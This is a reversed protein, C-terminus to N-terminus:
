GFSMEDVSINFDEKKYKKRKTRYDVIVILNTQVFLELNEVSFYKKIDEKVQIEESVGSSKGIKLEFFGNRNRLRIDKKFLQYDAYDYYIDHDMKEGMFQAGELLTKLQYETPLFQKEVEIM